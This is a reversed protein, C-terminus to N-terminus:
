YLLSGIRLSESCSNELVFRRDIVFLIENCLIYVDIILM